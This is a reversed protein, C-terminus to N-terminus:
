NLRLSYREVGDEVVLNCQILAGLKSIVREIPLEQDRSISKEFSAAFIEKLQLNHGSMDYKIKLHIELLTYFVTRLFDNYHEDPSYGYQEEFMPKLREIWGKRHVYTSDNQYHNKCLRIWKIENETLPIPKTIGLYRLAKKYVIKIKNKKM